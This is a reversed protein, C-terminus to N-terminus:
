LKYKKLLFSGIKNAFFQITTWGLKQILSLHKIYVANYELYPIAGRCKKFEAAGSSQNLILGRSEAETILKASLIRYLGIEKPVDTDYGFFPTTMVGNRIFFGLVGDIKNDKKLVFLELIKEKLALEIFRTNFQPNHCSYKKLYLKNYLDIIRPLDEQKIHKVDFWRYSHFDLLNADKRLILRAKSKLSNNHRTDSIYVQRSAIMEYGNNRFSNYLQKNDSTNISRFIIAHKMYKKKLFSTIDKVQTDSLPPYLNTSLAWNNICIVKNISCLKLLLGLSNLLVKLVFELKPNGLTSLEELAYSIYHTYPSCTYSNDYQGDNITVPLVIDDVMLIQMDTKVNDIYESVGHVVMPILYKRAYEANDTNPCVFDELNLKNYLKIQSEM